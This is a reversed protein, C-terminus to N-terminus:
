QEAGSDAELRFPEYRTGQGGFFKTFFEYYELRLIQIAVIVGELAIIVSTGVVFVVASWLLGGPLDNVLRQIVFVTFCLAAHSLAFAAVRMFSFTNALYVTVTEMAGILGEFVSMLLGGREGGGALLMRVPEHLALVALPLGILVAALWLDGRGAGAAVVKIVLALGGWYFVIGVLGFRGLLGEEVEGQRLRNIVNLVAGLSILGVGVILALLLYRLVQQEAAGAAEGEFRMPEFGLTLPFGMRSLSGGFFSGQFFTGFLASAAGAYVILQGIDRTTRRGALRMTLLGVGILCLGHGLDGFIIGFLLLFSAAFMVTPEIETYSPVGYGQVLRAFPALAGHHEVRSPVKGQEIEDATPREIQVVCQGRAERRVTQRIQETRSAPAWGAIVRTTWTTGFNQEAGYIRLQLEVARWAEQLMEGYDDGIQQLSMRLEHRRRQLDRRKRSAARYVDAPTQEEWTPLERERFQHAELATEVAFRRRRGSLILVDRPGGPEPEPGLPVVLAGPPLDARIGELEDPPTEGATLSLLESESLRSLASHVDRYPELEELMDTTDTLGEEVRALEDRQTETRAELSGVMERVRRLDPLETGAEIGSPVRLGLRDLLGEIRDQLDQHSEIKEDLDEPELEGGSEEVSSRLHVVGLRGLARTVAEEDRGLILIRIKRMESPRLKM